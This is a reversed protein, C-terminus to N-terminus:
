LYQLQLICILNNDSKFLKVDCRSDLCFLEGYDPDTLDAVLLLSQNSKDFCHSKSLKMVIDDIKSM